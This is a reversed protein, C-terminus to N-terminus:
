VTRESKVQALDAASKQARFLVILRARAHAELQLGAQELLTRFQDFRFFRFHLLRSFFAAVLRPGWSDAEVLTMGVLAGGPELVAAVERLAAEPQPLLHLVGCCNVLSVSERRIPLIQANGQLFAVNRTGEAGAARFGEQLMPYALDMGVVLGSTALKALATTFNGPGCGVDLIREQARPRRLELLGALEQEFGGGSLARLVLPKWWRVYIPALRGFLRAQFAANPTPAASM